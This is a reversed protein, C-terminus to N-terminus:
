DEGGVVIKFDVLRHPPHSLCLGSTHGQLEGLAEEHKCAGNCVNQLAERISLGEDHTVDGVSGATDVIECRAREPGVQHHVISMAAQHGDVSRLDLHEIHKDVNFDVILM